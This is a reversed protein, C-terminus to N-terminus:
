RQNIFLVQWRLLNISSKKTERWRLNHHRVIRPKLEMMQNDPESVWGSGGDSKLTRDFPLSYIKKWRKSAARQVFAAFFHKKRYVILWLWLCHSSKCCTFPSWCCKFMKGQEHCLQRVVSSMIKSRINGKTKIWFSRPDILNLLGKPLVSVSALLQALPVERTISFPTNLRVAKHFTWWHKKINQDMKITKVGKLFDQCKFKM